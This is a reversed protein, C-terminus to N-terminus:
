RSLVTLPNLYVGNQLIELHLHPGTAHGTTGVQGIEMNTNVERDVAVEIKSLHAYYSELGKDHEIVILNGYGDRRNGSFVVKGERIPKVPTGTPAGLDVAPHFFSYGQNIKVVDLPYRIGRQTVLTNQSQVITEDTPPINAATAGGPIFSVVAAAVAMNTAFIKRASKHDAIYRVFRGLLTGSHYKRRVRSVNPVLPEDVLPKRRKVLKMHLQLRYKPLELSFKRMIPLFFDWRAPNLRLELRHFCTFDLKSAPQNQSALAPISGACPPKASRLTEVEGDPWVAM